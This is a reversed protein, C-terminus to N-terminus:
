LKVAGVAAEETWMAKGHWSLIRRVCAGIGGHGWCLSTWALLSAWDSRRHAFLRVTLKRWPQLLFTEPPALWDCVPFCKADREAGSPDVVCLVSGTGVACWWPCRLAAGM